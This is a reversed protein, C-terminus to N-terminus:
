ADGCSALSEHDPTVPIGKNIRFRNRSGCLDRGIQCDTVEPSRSTVPTRSRLPTRCGVIALARTSSSTTQAGSGRCAGV